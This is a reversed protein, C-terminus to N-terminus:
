YDIRRYYMKRSSVFFLFINLSSLFSVQIGHKSYLFCVNMIKKFFKEGGGREGEDNENYPWM